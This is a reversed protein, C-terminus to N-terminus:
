KVPVSCGGTMSTARVDSVAIPLGRISYYLGMEDPAIRSRKLTPTPLPRRPAPARKVVVEEVPAEEPETEVGEEPRQIKEPHEAAFERVADLDDPVVGLFWPEAGLEAVADALIRGNSDYVLGPRMTAGPQVVEDGTTFIAVRPPAYVRVQTKGVAALVGTERSTLTTGALASNM